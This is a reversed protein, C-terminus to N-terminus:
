MAMRYAWGCGHPGAFGSGDCVGGAGDSDLKLLLDKGKQAAM